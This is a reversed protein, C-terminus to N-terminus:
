GWMFFNQKSALDSIFIFTYVVNPCTQNIYLYYFNPGDYSYAHHCQCAFYYGNALPM